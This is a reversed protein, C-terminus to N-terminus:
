NRGRGCRADGPTEAVVEYDGLAIGSPVVTGEFKGDDGTALTALTSPAIGKSAGAAGAAGAVLLSVQVPVHACPEGDARVEGRLHLPVGRHVVAEDVTLAITSAPRPDDDTPADNGAGVAPSSPGSSASTAPRAASAGQASSAGPGAGPGGSPDARSVMEDGRESGRPWPFADPAPVYAARQPLSRAADHTMRGAGGLDIRRWLASDNVEVWAHAENQVLRTPIGLSQATILFAYARHRCVGKKSLALDLYVSARGSPTDDSDAFARFYDVLRALAQRPRMARSVGIAARVRTADRAVNDPLALVVPLDAWGVDAIGDAFAARPMALEMVLRARTPVASPGGPRATPQLFWNGAGDRLIRFPVETAGVGLRARVVRAGPGVSPIRVSGEPPVDVVMDAYFADEDATPQAANVFTDIPVLHPDRVEVRYDSRVADFAELRKFPATSPTFPDDYANIEPRRTDRDPSFSSRTGGAGYSPDSRSPLRLPDPAGVAGGTTHIAAPLDGEVSVRLALDEEPDPPIPEHELPAGGARAAGPVVSSAMLAAAAIFRRAVRARREKV